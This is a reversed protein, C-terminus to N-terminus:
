LVASLLLSKKPTNIYCSSVEKITSHIPSLFFYLPIM